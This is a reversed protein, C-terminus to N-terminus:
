REGMEMHISRSVCVLAPPPPQSVRMSHSIRVLPHQPPQRVVDFAFPLLHHNNVMALRSACVLQAAPPGAVRMSRSVHILLPVPAPVCEFVLQSPSTPEAVRM